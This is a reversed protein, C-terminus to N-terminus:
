GRRDWAFAGTRAALLGEEGEQTHDTRAAHDTSHGLSGRDDDEDPLGCLRM